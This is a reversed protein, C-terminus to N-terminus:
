TTVEQLLLSQKPLYVDLQINEDKIAVKKIVTEYGVFKYELTYDGKELQLEYYADHNTSTGSGTEQVYITAFPLTEGEDGYVVGRVGQAHLQFVSCVLIIVILLNRM